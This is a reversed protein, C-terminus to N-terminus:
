MSAAVEITVGGKNREFSSSTRKEQLLNRASLGEQGVTRSFRKPLTTKPTSKGRQLDFWDEKEESKV